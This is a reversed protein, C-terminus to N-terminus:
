ARRARGARVWALAISLPALALMVPLIPWRLVGVCLVTVAVIVISLADLAGRTISHVGTSFTLGVVAAAIGDLVAHLTRNDGVRGYIAGIVLIIVFPGLLFAAPAACAGIGGRLRRGVLVSLKVGNAGPLSQGLAMEALFEKDDVWGRRQVIDRYIWGASSGGFSTCGLRLFAFFIAALGVKTTAAESSTADVEEERKGASYLHVTEGSATHPAFHRQNEGRLCHSMSIAPAKFRVTENDRHHNNRSRRESARAGDIWQQAFL